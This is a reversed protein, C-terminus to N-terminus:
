VPVPFIDPDAVHVNGDCFVDPTPLIDPLPPYIAEDIVDPVPFIAPV